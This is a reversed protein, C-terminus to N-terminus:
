VTGEVAQSWYGLADWWVGGEREREREKEREREREGERGRKRNYQLKFKPGQV